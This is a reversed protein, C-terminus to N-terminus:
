GHGHLMRSLQIADSQSLDFKSAIEFQKRAEDKRGAYYLAEGRKFERSEEAVSADRAAESMAMGVAAARQAVAQSAGAESEEIVGQGV